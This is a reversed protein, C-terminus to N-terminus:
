RPSCVCAQTRQTHAPDIWAKRNLSGPHPLRGQPRQPTEPHVGAEPGWLDLSSCGPEELGQQAQRGGETETPGRGQRMGSGRLEFVLWRSQEWWVAAGLRGGPHPLGGRTEPWNCLVGNELMNPSTAPPGRAMSGLRPPVTCKHVPRCCAYGEGPWRGPEQAAPVGGDPSALSCPVGLRCHGVCRPARPSEATHVTPRSQSAEYRLSLSRTLAGM